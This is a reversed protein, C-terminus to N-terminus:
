LVDLRRDPRAGLGDRQQDALDFGKRSHGDILAVLYVFGHALRIPTIDASM